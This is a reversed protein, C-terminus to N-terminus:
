APRGTVGTGTGAGVRARGLLGLVERAPMPRGLLYGQALACGRQNLFQLEEPDEVGEAVAQIGLGRTMGLIGAVVAQNGRDTQVGRVFARDIKLVDVTLARLHSLSSFGVGFDDLATRVGLASLGALVEGPDSQADVLTQESVELTLQQRPVGFGTLADVVERVLGRERFQMPSLNVSIGPARAGLRGWARWHRGVQSAVWRGLDAALAADDAYPLFAGADLVTGDPQPWRILAELGILRQRVTDFIPQYHVALGGEVALARRLDSRVQQHHQIRAAIRANFFAYGGRGHAKADYMAADANRVLTAGDAGDEPFMAIGISASITLETGDLDLPARLAEVVKDAVVRVGDQSTMSPLVVLFEDGAHRGVTDEARVVQSLRVAVERLLRDGADHGHTDNIAKFHDLDVFLVGVRRRHRRAAAVAQELRDLTQARNPLGTLADHLAIRRMEDAIRRRESVDAILALLKRARGDPDLTVNGRAHLWRVHGGPWVVRFEQDLDSHEAVCRGIAARMRERDDAHIRAELQAVSVEGRDPGFGLLRLGLPSTAITGADLDGELMGVGALDQALRLREREQHSARDEAVKHTVDRQVGVYFAPQGHADPVPYLSLNNWYSTGDQRQNRVTVRTARGERIAARIEAQAARDGVSGRLVRPNRGVIDERRYGTMLTFARNVDVVSLEASRVDVIVIGDASAEFARARLDALPTDCIREPLAVASACIGNVAGDAQRLVYRTIALRRHVGAIELTLAEFRPGDAARAM